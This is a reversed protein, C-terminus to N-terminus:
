DAALHNLLSPVIRVYLHKLEALRLQANPITGRMQQHSVVSGVLVLVALMSM